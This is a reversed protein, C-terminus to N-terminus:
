CLRNPGTSQDVSTQTYSAFNLRMRLVTQRQQDSLRLGIVADPPPGTITSGTGSEHRKLYCTSGRRSTRARFSSLTTRRHDSLSCAHRGSMNAYSPWYRAPRRQYGAPDDNRDIEANECDDRGQEAQAKRAVRAEIALQVAEPVPADPEADTHPSGIRTAGSTTWIDLEHLRRSSHTVNTDIVTFGQESYHRLQDADLPRRLGGPSIRM